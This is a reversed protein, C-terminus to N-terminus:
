DLWFANKIRRAAGTNNVAVLDFSISEYDWEPHNALIIEAAKIIRHQQRHTLAEMAEAWTPRQKVEVFCLESTQQVVLDVEGCSTRARRLLISAGSASLAAEAITEAMM